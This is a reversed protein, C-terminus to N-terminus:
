LGIKRRSDAWVKQKSAKEFRELPLTVVMDWERPDVMHFKSRVHKWLYKKVCPKFWRYRASGSLLQYDLQLRKRETIHQMKYHRYIADLLNKRLAPPLYHLNLGLFGDNDFRIPLILPFRDYYPLIEKLKPDYRYMLLRGTHRPTIKDMAAILPRTGPPLSKGGDGIMKVAKRFWEQARKASDSTKSVL